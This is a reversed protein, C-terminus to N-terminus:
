EEPYQVRIVQLEGLHNELVEFSCWILAHRSSDLTTMRTSLYATGDSVAHVQTSNIFAKAYFDRYLYYEFDKKWIRKSRPISDLLLHIDTM